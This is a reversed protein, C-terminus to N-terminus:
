FYFHLSLNARDRCNKRSTQRDFKNSFDILLVIKKDMWVWLWGTQCKHLILIAREIVPLM